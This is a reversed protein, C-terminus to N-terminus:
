SAELLLNEDTDSALRSHVRISLKECADAHIADVDLSDNCDMEWRTCRKDKMMEATVQEAKDYQNWFDDGTVTNEDPLWARMRGITRNMRDVLDKRKPFFHITGAGSYFRIDFYSSQLREGAVLSDLQNEFLSYISVEPTKRGDLMAFVKDIDMIQGRADYGLGKFYNDGMRPLIFRTMKIRFSGSRHKSNSKWGKYYARNEWHYKTFMDFVDETMEDDMKGKGQLLGALFGHINSETFEMQKVMEFDSYLRKYAESSLHKSFDTANIVTKWAADKLEDYRKNVDDQSDGSVLPRSGTGEDTRRFHVGVMDAYRDAKAGVIVAERMAEVAARFAMVTNKISNNHFGIETSASVEIKEVGADKKMGGIVDTVTEGQRELHILAVRVKTSRQTDETTFESDLYEVSGYQEIIKALLVQKKDSPSEVSAANLIAVIEGSYLLHWAKLVHDVGVNFPPNMLIHSYMPGSQFQIFDADVVKHGQDRLIAQNQLDIEICDVPARSHRFDHEWPKLLDGRGASPELMRRVPHKFKAKAKYALSSPTPYFQHDIM